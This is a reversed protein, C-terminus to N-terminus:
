DLEPLIPPEFNDGDREIRTILEVNWALYVELWRRFRIDHALHMSRREELMALLGTTQAVVTRTAALLGTHKEDMPLGAMDNKIHAAIAAATYRSALPHHTCTWRQAVSCERMHAHEVGHVGCFVMCDFAAEQARGPVDDVNV